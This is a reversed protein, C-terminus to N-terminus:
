DFNTNVTRRTVWPDGALPPVTWEEIQPGTGPDFMVYLVGKGTARDNVASLALYMTNPKQLPKIEPTRDLFGTSCNWASLILRHSDTSAYFILHTLPRRKACEPFTDLTYLPQNDQVAIALPSRPEFILETESERTLPIVTGPDLVAESITYEHQQLKRDSDVTYLMIQKGNRKAIPCLAFTFGQPQSFGFSDGIWPNSTLSNSTYRGQTIGNAFGEKQFLVVLQQSQRYFDQNWYTALFTSNSGRYLGSFNDDKWAQSDNSPAQREFLQNTNTMYYINKVPSFSYNAHPYGAAAALPTGPKVANSITNIRWPTRSATSNDWASERLKNMADQYYVRKHLTRNLDTWQLAALGTNTYR